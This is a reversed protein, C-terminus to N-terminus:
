WSGVPWPGIGLVPPLHTVARLYVFFLHHQHHPLRDRGVWIKGRTTRMARWAPPLAPCPLALCAASLARTSFSIFGLDVDFHQGFFAWGLKYVGFGRSWTPGASYATVLSEEVAFNKKKKRGEGEAEGPKRREDRRTRQRRRRSRSALSWSGVDIWSPM